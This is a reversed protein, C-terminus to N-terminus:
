KDVSWALREKLEEPSLGKIVLVKNRSTHGRTIALDSKSVGLAQAMLALLVQNAQGKHPLATVRVYLIGDRFGVIGDSKAGPQL